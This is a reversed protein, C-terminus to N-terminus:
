PSFFSLSTLAGLSLFGKLFFSFVINMAKVRKAILEECFMVGYIWGEMGGSASFGRCHFVM